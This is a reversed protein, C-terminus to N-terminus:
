PQEPLTWSQPAWIPAAPDGTRGLAVRWSQMPPRGAAEWGTVIAAAEGAWRAAQPGGARVAGDPLIVAGGTGAQDLLALVSQERGPLAAYTARNSHVGAAYWLDRYEAPSLESRWRAAAVPTLETLVGAAVPAPHSGPHGATLPGAASMFGAPCLVEAVPGGAASRVVLVPHTGAHEVPVVLPGAGEVADLWHPSLGGVGVTVIVRDFRGRVAGASINGRGGGTAAASGREPTNRFRDAPV